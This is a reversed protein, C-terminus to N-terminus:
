DLEVPSKRKRSEELQVSKSRKSCRECAPKCLRVEESRTGLSILVPSRRLRSDGDGFMVNHPM